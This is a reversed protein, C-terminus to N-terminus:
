KMGGKLMDIIPRKVTLYAPIGGSLFSFLLALPLVSIFIITWNLRPLLMMQGEISNSFVIWDIGRCVPVTLLIGLVTGTIVLLLNEVLIFLFSTRKSAGLARKLGIERTQVSTNAMSLLVINLVPVVLLIFIMVGVGSLFLDGGYMKRIFQKETSIQKVSVSKDINYYTKVFFQYANTVSRVMTEAKMNEPYLIYTEVWDNSENKSFKEPVWLSARGQPAFYSVDAVVGTIRYTNGEIQIEKNIVSKDPFFSRVFNENVIVCPMQMEGETFFHGIGDVHRAFKLPQQGGRLTRLEGLTVLSEVVAYPQVARDLVSRDTVDDAVVVGLLELLFLDEHPGCDVQQFLFVAVLDHGERELILVVVHALHDLRVRLHDVLSQFRHLHGAHFGEHPGNAAARVARAEREHAQRAGVEEGSAHIEVALEFVTRERRHALGLLHDQIQRNKPRFLGFFM